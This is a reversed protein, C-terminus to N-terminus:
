QQQLILEERNKLSLIKRNLGNTFLYRRGVLAYKVDRSAARKLMEEPHEILMCRGSPAGVFEKLDQLEKYADTSILKTDVGQTLGKAINILRTKEKTLDEKEFSVAGYDSM